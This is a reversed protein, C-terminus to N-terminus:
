QRNINSTFGKFQDVAKGVYDTVVGIADKVDSLTFVFRDLIEGGVEKIKLLLTAEGKNAM